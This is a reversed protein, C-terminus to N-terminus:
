YKTYKNRQIKMGEFDLPPSLHKDGWACSFTYNRWFPATAKSTQFSFFNDDTSFAIQVGLHSM